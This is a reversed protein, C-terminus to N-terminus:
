SFPMRVLPMVLPSPVKPSSIVELMLVMLDIGSVRLSDTFGKGSRTSTLPSTNILLGLKLARFRLAFCFPSLTNAFGLFAAAPLKLCNSGAIM